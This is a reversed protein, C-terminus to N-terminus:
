MMAERKGFRDTVLSPSHLPELEPQGIPSKEFPQPQPQLWLPEISTQVCELAEHAEFDIHLFLKAEFLESVKTLRGLRYTSCTTLIKGLITTWAFSINLVTCIITSNFKHTMGHFKPLSHNFM